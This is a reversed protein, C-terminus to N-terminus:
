NFSPARTPQSMFFDLPTFLRIDISELSKEVLELIDKEISVPFFLVRSTQARSPHEVAVAKTAIELIPEMSLVRGRLTGYENVVTFHVRFLQGNKARIVKEYIGNQRSTVLM